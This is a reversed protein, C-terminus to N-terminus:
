YYDSLIASELVLNVCGLSTKPRSSGRNGDRVRGACWCGRQVGTDCDSAGFGPRPQIVLSGLYTPLAPTVPFVSRVLCHLDLSDIAGALPIWLRSNCLRGLCNLNSVSYIVGMESYSVQKWRKKEHLPEESGPLM